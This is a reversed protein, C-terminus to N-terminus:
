KTTTFAEPDIDIAPLHDGAFQRQLWFGGTAGKSEGLLPSLLNGGGGKILCVSLAYLAIKVM